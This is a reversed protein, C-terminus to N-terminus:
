TQDGDEVEFKNKKSRGYEPRHDCLGIILGAEILSDEVMEPSIREDMLLLTFSLKWGTKVYPRRIIARAGTRPPIRGTCEHVGDPKKVGLSVFDDELFVTARMIPMASKRGIKVGASTCGELLCKKINDAPVGIPGTEKERYVKHKVEELYDKKTKKKGGKKELVSPDLLNNFLMPSIGEIEVKIQQM